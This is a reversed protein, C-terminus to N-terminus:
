VSAERKRYQPTGFERRARLLCEALQAGIADRRIAHHKLSAKLKCAFLAYSAPVELGFLQEGLLHL